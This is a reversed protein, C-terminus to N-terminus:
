LVESLFYRLFILVLMWMICLLNQNNKFFVDQVKGKFQNNNKIEDNASIHVDIELKHGEVCDSGVRAMETDDNMGM